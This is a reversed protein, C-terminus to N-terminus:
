VTGTFLRLSVMKWLLIREVMTFSLHYTSSRFQVWLILHANWLGFENCLSVRISPHGLCYVVLSFGAVLIVFLVFLWIYKIRLISAYFHVVATKFCWCTSCFYVWFLLFLISFSFYLEYDAFLLILISQIAQVWTDIAFIAKVLFRM